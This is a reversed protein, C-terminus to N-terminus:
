DEYELPFGEVMDFVMSQIEYDFWKVFVAWSRNKPWMQPDTYWGSLEHEFIKQYNKKLYKEYRDIDDCVPILYVYKSDFGETSLLAPDLEDESSDYEKSTYVLWDLFPKKVQIILASRNIDPYYFEDAMKYCGGNMKIDNM